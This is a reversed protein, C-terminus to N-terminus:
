SQLVLLAWHLMDQHDRMLALLRGGLGERFEQGLDFQVFSFTRLRTWLGREFFERINCLLLSQQLSQQPQASEHNICQCSAAEGSAGWFGNSAHGAQAFITKRCASPMKVLPKNCRLRDNLFPTVPELYSAQKHM